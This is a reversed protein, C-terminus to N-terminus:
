ASPTQSFLQLIFTVRSKGWGQERSVPCLIGIHSTGEGYESSLCMRIKSSLYSM